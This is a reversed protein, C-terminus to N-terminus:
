NPFCQVKENQWNKSLNFNAKSFTLRDVIKYPNNSVTVFGEHQSSEGDIYCEVNGNVFIADLLRQKLQFIKHWVKFTSVNVEGKYKADLTDYM